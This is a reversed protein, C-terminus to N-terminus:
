CSQGTWSKLIATKERLAYAMAIERNQDNLASIAHTKYQEASRITQRIKFRLSFAPKVSSIGLYFSLALVLAFALCTEM